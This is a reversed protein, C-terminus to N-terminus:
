FKVHIVNYNISFNLYLTIFSIFNKIFTIGIKYLFEWFYSIKKVLISRREGHISFVRQIVFWLYWM